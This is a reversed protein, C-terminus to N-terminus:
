PDVDGLKYPKEDRGDLPQAHLILDNYTISDIKVNFKANHCLDKASLSPPGLSVEGGIVGSEFDHSEGKLADFTTEKTQPLANDKKTTCTFKVDGGSSTLFVTAGPKDNSSFGIELFKVTVSHDSNKEVHEGESTAFAAAMILTFALTLLVAVSPVVFKKTYATQLLSIM